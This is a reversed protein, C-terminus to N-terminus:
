DLLWDVKKPKPLKNMRQYIPIVEVPVTIEPHYEIADKIGEKLPTSPVYGIDNNMKEMSYIHPLTTMEWGKLERWIQSISIGEIKLPVNLQAAIEAYYDKAIVVKPNVLNYVQKFTKQNGIAKSIATAIDKPYICNLFVKGGNCLKLTEGKKLREILKPDRNHEPICGLLSHAGLIHYPRLLTWNVDLIRQWYRELRVKGDVYGGFQGEKALSTNESIPGDIKVSRDYVLSTSMTIIHRAHNKFLKFTQEASKEDFAILDIVVDWRYDIESNLKNMAEEYELTTRDIIHQQVYSPFTPDAAEELGISHINYEGDKILQKVVPVGIIGTGGIVLANKKNKEM